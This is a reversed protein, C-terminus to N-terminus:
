GSDPEVVGAAIKMLTSKGAGNQGLLGRIQGPEIALDIGDCATVRGYRKTISRLELLPAGDSAPGAGAPVSPIVASM